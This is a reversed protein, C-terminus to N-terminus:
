NHADTERLNTGRYFFGEPFVPTDLRLTNPWLSEVPTGASRGDLIRETEDLVSRAWGIDRSEEGIGHGTFIRLAPIEKIIGLFDGMQVAYKELSQAGEVQMWFSRNGMADGSFLWGRRRELLMAARPTHGGLSLAELCIGGLDFLQGERLSRLPPDGARCLPFAARGRAGILALEEPFIWAPIEERLFDETSPGLHDPHAHTIVIQLPKDTLSRVVGYLDNECRQTDILLAANEGVLLYSDVFRGSEETEVIRFLGDDLKFVTERVSM